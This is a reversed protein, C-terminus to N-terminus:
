CETLRISLYKSFSKFYLSSPFRNTSAKLWVAFNWFCTQWTRSYPSSPRWSTWPGITKTATWSSIRWARINSPVSPSLRRLPPLDHRHNKRSSTTLYIQLSQKSPLSRLRDSSVHKSRGLAGWLWGPIGLLFRCSISVFTRLQSGLFFSDCYTTKPYHKKLSQDYFIPLHFM